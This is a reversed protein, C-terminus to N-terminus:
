FNLEQSDNTSGNFLLTLPDPFIRVTDTKLYRQLIEVAENSWLPIRGLDACGESTDEGPELLHYNEIDGREDSEFACFYMAIFGREIIFNRLEAEIKINM